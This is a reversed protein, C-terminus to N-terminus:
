SSQNVFICCVSAVCHLMDNKLNITFMSQRMASFFKSFCHFITINKKLHEDRSSFFHKVCIHLDRTKTCLTQPVEVALINRVVPMKHHVHALQYNSRAKSTRHLQHHELLCGQGRYAM